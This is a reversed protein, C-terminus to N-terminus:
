KEKDKNSNSNKKGGQQRYSLENYPLNQEDFTQRLFAINNKLYQEAVKDSPIFEASVRGQKDIRMIVSINNDFDIRASQGTKYCNEIINSLTKSTRVTKEVDATESLAELNVNVQNNNISVQAPINETLSAFFVADDKDMTMTNYNFESKINNLDKAWSLIKTSSLNTAGAESATNILLTQDAPALAINNQMLLANLEAKFSNQEKQTEKLQENSIESQQEKQVPTNVNTINM